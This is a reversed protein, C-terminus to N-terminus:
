EGRNGKVLGTVLDLPIKGMRAKQSTRGSGFVGLNSQSIGFLFNTSQDMKTKVIDFFRKKRKLHDLSGL